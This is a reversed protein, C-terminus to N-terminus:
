SVMPIMTNLIGCEVVKGVYTMAVDRGVSVLACM